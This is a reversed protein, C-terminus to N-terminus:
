AAWPQAIPRLPRPSIPLRNVTAFESRMDQKFFAEAFRLVATWDTLDFDRTTDTPGGAAASIGQLVCRKFFGYQTYKLAGAFSAVFRPRLDTEDIFNRLVKDDVQRAKPRPDATNLSVTFLATPMLKLQARLEWTWDVLQPSFDGLYVPCGVIVAEFEKLDAATPYDGLAVNFIRLEQGSAALRDGIRTAICATHGGQSSIVLAIRNM